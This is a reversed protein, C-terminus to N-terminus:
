VSAEGCASSAPLAWNLIAVAVYAVTAYLATHNIFLVWKFNSWSPNLTSGWRIKRNFDLNLCVHGVGRAVLWKLIAGGKCHQLKKHFKNKDYSLVFVTVDYYVNWSYVNWFYVNWSPFKVLFKNLDDSNQNFITLTFIYKKSLFWWFNPLAM